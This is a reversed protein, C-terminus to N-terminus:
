VPPKNHGVGSLGAENIEARTAYRLSAAHYKKTPGEAGFKVIFYDNANDDIIGIRGRPVVVMDGLKFKLIHATPNDIM